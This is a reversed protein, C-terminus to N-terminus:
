YGGKLSRWIFQRGGAPRLPLEPGLIKKAVRPRYDCVSVLKGNNKPKLYVWLGNPHQWAVGGYAAIRQANIDPMENWHFEAAPVIGKAWRVPESARVEALKQLVDDDMYGKLLGAGGAALALPLCILGVAYLGKDAVDGTNGQVAWVLPQVIAGALWSVKTSKFILEGLTLSGVTVQSNVFFTEYGPNEALRRDLIDTVGNPRLVIKNSGQDDAPWTPDSPIPEGFPKLNEEMCALTNKGVVGDKTLKKRIVQNYMNTKAFGYIDQFAKVAHYTEENYDGNPVGGSGLSQPLYHSGLLEALGQQILAVAEGRDGKKLPPANKSALQLRQNNQFRPLSLM